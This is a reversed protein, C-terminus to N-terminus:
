LTVPSNNQLKHRHIFTPPRTQPKIEAQASNFRTTTVRVPINIINNDSKLDIMHLLTFKLM